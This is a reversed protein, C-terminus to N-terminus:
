LFNVLRSRSQSVLLGLLAKGRSSGQRMYRPDDSFVVLDQKMLTPIRNMATGGDKASQIHIKVQNFHVDVPLTTRLSVLVPEIMGSGSVENMTQAMVEAVALPEWVVCENRVGYLNWWVQFISNM